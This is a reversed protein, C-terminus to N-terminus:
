AHPHTSAAYLHSTLRAAEANGRHAAVVSEGGAMHAHVSALGLRRQWPGQEVSVTQIRAAPCVTTLNRLFLGNWVTFYRQDLRYGLAKHFPTARRAGPPAPIPDQLHTLADSGLLHLVLKDAVTRPCVPVLLGPTSAGAVAVKVKVWDFKRWLIPQHLEISAIRSDRYTYQRTDFMGYDARYSGESIRTVSWGSYAFLRRGTLRWVKPAFALLTSLALPEGSLIFPLIGACALFVSRINTGIDLLLSLVLEKTNVRYLLEETTDEQLIRAKLARAQNLTLYSLTMTTGSMVVRLTCVGILRGVFPRVIDVSQVHDLECHRRVKFLLGSRYGLIDGDLSYHSNWWAATFWGVVIAVAGIVSVSAAWLPVDIKDKTGNTGVSFLDHQQHVLTGLALLVAWSRRLPTVPHLRGEIPQSM